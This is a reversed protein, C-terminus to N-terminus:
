QVFFTIGYMIAAGIVTAFPMLVGSEHQAEPLLDSTSLYLFFGAFFALLLGLVPQAIHLNYAILAGIVPAVADLSLLLITKARSNKHRLMMTVTSVGDGFDHAIVAAAVVFGVEANVAFGLGIASGDLFSHLAMGSAGIVGLHKTDVHRHGFGAVEHENEEPHHAHIFLFRQVIYFAVFAIVTTAFVTRVDGHLEIAEPLLEFFAAGLLIGGSFAYLMHVHRGFKLALLGGIFTTCFTILVVYVQEM